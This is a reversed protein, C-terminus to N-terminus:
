ILEELRVPPEWKVERGPQLTQAAADCFLGGARGSQQAGQRNIEGLRAEVVCQAVGEANQKETPPPDFAALGVIHARLSKRQHGHLCNGQEHEGVQNKRQHAVVAPEIGARHLVHGVPEERDHVVVVPAFVPAGEAQNQRPRQENPVDERRLRHPPPQANGEDLGEYDDRQDDIAPTFAGVAAPDAGTTRQRFRHAIRVALLHRVTWEPVPHVHDPLDHQGGGEHQETQADDGPSPRLRRQADPGCAPIVAQEAAPREEAHLEVVVVDHVNEQCPDYAQSTIEPESPAHPAPEGARERRQHVDVRSERFVADEWVLLFADRAVDARRHTM